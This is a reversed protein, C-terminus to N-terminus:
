SSSSSGSPRSSTASGPSSTTSSTGGQSSSGSQVPVKETQLNQGQQSAQGEIAQQGGQGTRVQIKRPKTAESKPMTITLIGHDFNAEAKAADVEVPLSFSRQFQGHWIEHIYPEQGKANHHSHKIDGTVTVTDGTVSVNIDNPNAGPVAMELVVDNDNTYLDVPPFGGSVGGGGPTIFSQAFLRDIADRLPVYGSVGRRDLAM